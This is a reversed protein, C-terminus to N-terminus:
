NLYLEVLLSPLLSVFTRRHAGQKRLLRLFLLLLRLDAKTTTRLHTKLVVPTSQFYIRVLIPETAIRSNTRSLNHRIPVGIGCDASSKRRLLAVHNPCSSFPFLSQLSSCALPNHILKM